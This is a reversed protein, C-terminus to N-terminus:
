EPVPATRLCWFRNQAHRRLLIASVEGADEVVFRINKNIAM